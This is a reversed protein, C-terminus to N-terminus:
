SRLQSPLSRMQYNSSLKEQFASEKELLRFRVFSFYIIARSIDDRIGWTGVPSAKHTLSMCTPGYQIIESPSFIVKQSNNLDRRCTNEDCINKLSPISVSNVVM